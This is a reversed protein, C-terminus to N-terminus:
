PFHHQFSGSVADRVQCDLDAPPVPGSAGRVRGERWEEALSTMEVQHLGCPVIAAFGGLDVSVNLAFGHLTVWRRVGVGISAIKRGADTFVGTMGDIRKSAVGFGDLVDMLAQELRRLHLHVDREGRADLDVIPYGVLQGPAHYTVDGGRAVHHVEVGRGALEEATVLLNGPNASRGLTIVAPHELLLLRDGAVKQQRAEVAKRQLELGEGYAVSGLWDVQIPGQSAM